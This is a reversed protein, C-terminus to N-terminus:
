RRQPKLGSHRPGLHARAAWRLKPPSHSSSPFAAGSSTATELTGMNARWWEYVSSVIEPMVAAVGPSLNQGYEFSGGAVSVLLAFPEVEFVARTYILLTAPTLHHAFTHSPAPAARISECQWSGPAGEYCADIFIVLDAESIPQALEPTLQHAILVTASGGILKALEKAILGGIGDDSRLPNGYGIILLRVGARERENKDTENSKM